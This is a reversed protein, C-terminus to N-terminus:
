SVREIQQFRGNTDFTIKFHGSIGSHTVFPQLIRAPFLVTRGDISRAHVNKATGAYLALYEHAPISLSVEIIEAM